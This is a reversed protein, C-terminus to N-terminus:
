YTFVAEDGPKADLFHSDGVLAQLDWVELDRVEWHQMVRGSLAVKTPESEAAVRADAVLAKSQENQIVVLRTDGNVAMHMPQGWKYGILHEPLVNTYVINEAVSLIRGRVEGKVASIDKVFSNNSPPFAARGAVSIAVPVPASCVPLSSPEIGDLSILTMGPSEAYEPKTVLPTKSRAADLAAKGFVRAVGFATRVGLYIAEIDVDQGEVKLVDGVRVGMKSAAAPSFNFVLEKMSSTKMLGHFTDGKVKWQSEWRAREGVLASWSLFPEPKPPKEEGLPTLCIFEMPVRTEETEYDMEEFNVRQLTLVYEGPPVDITFGEDYPDESGISLSNFSEFRLKGSPVNLRAKQVKHWKANKKEASTLPLGVAFEIDRSDDQMLEYAVILGENAIEKLRKDRNEVDELLVKSAEQEKLRESSGLDYAFVVMGDNYLSFRRAEARFRPERLTVM